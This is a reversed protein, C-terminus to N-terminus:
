VKAAERRAKEAEEQAKAADQKAKDAERQEKAAKERAKRADQKRKEAERRAQAAPDDRKISPVAGRAAAREPDDFKGTLATPDDVAVRFERKLRETEVIEAEEGAREAEAWRDTVAGQLEPGSQPALLVSVATSVAAGLILGSSFRVTRRVFAM